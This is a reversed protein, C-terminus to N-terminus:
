IINRLIAPQLYSVKDFPADMGFKLFGIIFMEIFIINFSIM